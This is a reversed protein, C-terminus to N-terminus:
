PSEISGSSEWPTLSTRSLPRIPHGPLRIMSSQDSTRAVFTSSSIQSERSRCRSYANWSPNDPTRFKGWQEQKTRRRM